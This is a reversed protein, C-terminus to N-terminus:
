LLFDKGEDTELTDPDLSPERLRQLRLPVVSQRPPDKLEPLPLSMFYM